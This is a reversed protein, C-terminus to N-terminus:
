EYISRKFKNRSTSCLTQGERALSFSAKGFFKIDLNKKFWQILHICHKLYNLYEISDTKATFFEDIMWDMILINCFLILNPLISIELDTLKKINRNELATKQYSSLFDNMKDILLNGNNHSEWSVCFYFIALAVDISRFDIRAWDFDFVGVIKSESFKLNGPHYDGHIAIIPLNEINIQEFFNSLEVLSTALVKFYEKFCDEFCSNKSIQYYDKWKAFLQKLIIAKDLQAKKQTNKWGWVANHYLALIKASEQLETKNCLPNIWTYKDQGYLYKFISLYKGDIIVYTNDNKTKIPFSSFYFKKKSLEKLLSHEFIIDKELIDQKYIRLLYKNIKNNLLTEIEYSINVYGRNNKKIKNLTGIDFYDTLIKEIKM